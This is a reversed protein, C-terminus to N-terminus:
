PEEGWRAKAADDSERADVWRSGEPTDEKKWFPAETKLWDMIFECACFAEGRHAASVIVCVIQEGVELRGVRHIVVVDVLDWRARAKEVIGALAKETMAPYHELTLASVDDGDNRSRVIGVFSAVGGALPSDAEVRRVEEGLDFDAEGVRIRTNGM